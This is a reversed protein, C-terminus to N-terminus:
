EEQGQTAPVSQQRAYAQRERIQSLLEEQAEYAAERRGREIRMYLNGCYAVAAIMILRSLIVLFDAGDALGILFYVGMLGFTYSMTMVTTFAVAFAAIAPFYYAFTVSEYGSGGSIIMLTVVVLDMASAAYVVPTIVPRKMLLQAQLYFNFMALVLVGIIQFRIENINTANWLVLFLGSAVLIWRMAIIVQQGHVLDDNAMEKQHATQRGPFIEQILSSSHSGKAQRGKDVYSQTM